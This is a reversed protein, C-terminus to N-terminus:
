AMAMELVQQTIATLLAVNISTDTKPQQWLSDPMTFCRQFVPYPFPLQFDKFLGQIGGWITGGEGTGAVSLPCLRSTQPQRTMASM